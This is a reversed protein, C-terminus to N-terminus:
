RGDPESCHLVCITKVKQSKTRGPDIWKLHFGNRIISNLEIANGVHYIYETFGKPLLDNDQLELDM